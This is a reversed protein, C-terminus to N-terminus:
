CQVVVDVKCSEGGQHEKSRGEVVGFVPYNGRTGTPVALEKTVECWGEFARRTACFFGICCSPDMRHVSMKRPTHCHFSDISFGGNGRSHVNVNDQVLHPDLHILSDDQLRKIIFKLLTEFSSV